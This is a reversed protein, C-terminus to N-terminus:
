NILFGSFFTDAYNFFSDLMSRLWVRQGPQLDAVAHCTAMEGAQNNSHAFALAVQQGEVVLEMYADHTRNFSGITGVFFYTGTVPASFIGTGNDFADGNNNYVVPLVIPQGPGFATNQSLQAHFSVTETQSGTRSNTIQNKLDTIQSSLAIKDQMHITELLRVERTVATLSYNVQRISGDLEGSGQELSNVRAEIGPATQELAAVDKTLDEVMSSDVQKSRIDVLQTLNLVLSQVTSCQSCDEGGATGNELRELRKKLDQNEKRLLLNENQLHDQRARVLLLEGSVPDLHTSATGLGTLNTPLCGLGAFRPPVMCTYSGQPTLPTVTLLFHGDQYGTSNYVAGTPSLFEVTFDSPQVDTNFDGCRLQLSWQGTAPDQVAQTTLQLPRDPSLLPETVNVYVTRTLRFSSGSADSGHIEISYNGRDNPTVHRLTLSGSTGHTLRDAFNPLPVFSGHSNFAMLEPPPGDFLWEVNFLSDGQDLAFEWPFTVDKGTCATIAIADNLDTQWRLCRVLPLFLCLCVAFIRVRM